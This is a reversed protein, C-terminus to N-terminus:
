KTCGILLQCIQHGLTFKQM